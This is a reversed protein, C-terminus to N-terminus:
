SAAGLEAEIELYQPRPGADRPFRVNLERTRWVIRDAALVDDRYRITVVYDAAAEQRQAADRERGKMARVKAWVAAYETWTETRGGVGDPATTLRQLSVREDLEGIPTM